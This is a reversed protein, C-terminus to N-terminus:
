YAKSLYKKLKKVAQGRMSIENKEEKTMEAFTKTYGKPQFIANFGFPDAVKPAVITGTLTGEFYQVLNKSEAYGIITTCTARPNGLKNIIEYLGDNGLAHEFWKGLPGPLGHLCDLYLSTDEVIFPGAHHKFAEQLKFQIIKHSDLEQLEPLSIDLQEINPLLLKVEAYKFKNGTIFSLTNM